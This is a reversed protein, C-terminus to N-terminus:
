YGAVKDVVNRLPRGHLFRRLNEAFLATLDPWFSAHFGSVHPTILVDERAWLPSDAPLPEEDFVDLAAARLRRRDLAELLAQEDILRGRSVNVLIADPKMVAFEDRGMMRDTAATQPAAIIVVDANPLEDRLAPPPLVHSVGLPVPADLHRRVGVVTAGLASMLRATEGGIAGLGVIVVHAGRLLRIAGTAHFENQSWTAHTQRRWALPLDRLLALTVAVTHEAITVASTGRSNTMTVGSQVMAPFLMGGVGAAPSHIWTLQQAAALHAPKIQASFAADANAIGELADADTRAHIFTHGPFGRRLDDVQAEPICWATVPSYIAVLITM